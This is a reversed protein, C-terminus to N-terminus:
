LESPCSSLSLDEPEAEDEFTNATNEVYPAYIELLRMADGAEAKRLQLESM